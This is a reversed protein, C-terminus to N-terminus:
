ENILGADYSFTRAFTLKMNLTNREGTYYIRNSFIIVEYNTKEPILQGQSISNIVAMMTMMMMM